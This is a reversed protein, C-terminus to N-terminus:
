LAIKFEWYSRTWHNITDDNNKLTSCKHKNFIFCVYLPQSHLLCVSKLEGVVSSIPGLHSLSLTLRETTDLEKCGQPCYGTLSRQGQIEGPLLVPQTAMGKELPDEWCLSLVCTEQTAPLNKVTLAM